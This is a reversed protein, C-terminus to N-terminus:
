PLIAKGAMVAIISPRDCFYTRFTFVWGEAADAAAGFSDLLRELAHRRVRANGAHIAIRCSASAGVLFDKPAPFLTLDVNEYPSLHDGFAM